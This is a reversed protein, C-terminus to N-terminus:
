PANKVAVSVSASKSNGAVDSMMVSLTHTGNAVTRSNWQPAVDYNTTPKVTASLFPVGDVSYIAKVINVTDTAHVHVPITGQVVAGAHPEKIQVTLISAPSPQLGFTATVTTSATLTVSCTTGTGSCGGGSWGAFISGSAATATLNVTTGSAYSASCAIGCDIGTPSGTVTGSGNKTVTLPVAVTAAFTATVTVSGNGAMTCADSGSCGSGSWGSFTSGASPAGALTIVAGAPYTYSCVTGCDIGGPSSTVTGTGSGTEAVTVAFGGSPSACAVDSYGSMGYVDVAAVRYCYSTGLDVTTDPYSTVGPQQQAIQTYTGTTSMARQIIFGAQGSSADVWSLNLQAADSVSPGLVVGLTV